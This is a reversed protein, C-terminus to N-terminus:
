PRHTGNMRSVATPVATRRDALLDESQRKRFADQKAWEAAQSIGLYVIGTILLGFLFIPLIYITM